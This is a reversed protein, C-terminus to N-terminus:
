DESQVAQARINGHFPVEIGETSFNKKHKYYAYEAQRRAIQVARYEAERMLLERHQAELRENLEALRKREKADKHAVFAMGIFFIIVTLISGILQSTLTPETM